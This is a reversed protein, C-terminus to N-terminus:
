EPAAQPHSTAQPPPPPPEDFPLNQEEAEIRRSNWAAWLEYNKAIGAAEGETRGETKGEDRGEAKGEAKGEVRGEARGEAIGEIRAEVKAQEIAEELRRQYLRWLIMILFGGIEFIFTLVIAVPIFSSIHGVIAILTEVANERGAALEYQTVVIAYGVVVVLFFIFDVLILDKAFSFVSIRKNKM